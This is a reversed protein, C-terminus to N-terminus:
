TILPKDLKCGMRIMESFPVKFCKEFPICELCNPSDKSTGMEQRCGVTGQISRAMGASMTRKNARATTEDRSGYFHVIRNRPANKARTEVVM